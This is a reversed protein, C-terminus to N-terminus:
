DGLQAKTKYQEWGIITKRCMSRHVSKQYECFSSSIFADIKERWRISVECEECKVETEFLQGNSARYAQITEM